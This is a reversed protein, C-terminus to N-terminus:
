RYVSLCMTSGPHSVRVPSIEVGRMIRQVIAVCFLCSKRSGVAWSLLAVCLPVTEKEVVLVTQAVSECRVLHACAPAICRGRPELPDMGDVWCGRSLHAGVREVSPAAPAPEWIRVHGRPPGGGAAQGKGDFSRTNERERQLASDDPPGKRHRPGGSLNIQRELRQAAHPQWWAEASPSPRPDSRRDRRAPGRCPASSSCRPKTRREDSAAPVVARGMFGLIDTGIRGPRPGGRRWNQHWSEWARAGSLLWKGALM